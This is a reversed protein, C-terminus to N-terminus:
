SYPVSGHYLHIFTYAKKCFHYEGLLIGKGSLHSDSELILEMLQIRHHVDGKIEEDNQLM